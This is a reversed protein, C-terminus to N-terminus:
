NLNAFRELKLTLTCSVPVVNDIGITRKSKIAKTCGAIVDGGTGVAVWAAPGGRRSV